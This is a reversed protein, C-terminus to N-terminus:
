TLGASARERESVCLMDGHYCREPGAAGAPVRGPSPGAAPGLDTYPATGSRCSESPLFEAVGPGRTRRDGLLWPLVAVLRPVDGDGSAM